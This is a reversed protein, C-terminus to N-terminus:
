YPRTPESIHILSLCYGSCSPELVLYYDDLLRAIDFEAGLMEFTVNFKVLLVGKESTDPEKLTFFWSPWIKLQQVDPQRLLEDIIHVQVLRHKELLREIKMRRELLRSNRHSRMLWACAHKRSFPLLCRGGCYLLLSFLEATTASHVLRLRSILLFTKLSKM